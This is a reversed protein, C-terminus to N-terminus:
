CWRKKPSDINVYFSVIMKRLCYLNVVTTVAIEEPKFRKESLLSPPPHIGNCSWRAEMIFKVGQLQRARSTSSCIAQGLETVRRTSTTQRQVVSHLLALSTLPSQNQLTHQHITQSPGLGDSRGRISPPTPNSSPQQHSAAIGTQFTPNDQHSNLVSRWGVKAKVANKKGERATRTKLV